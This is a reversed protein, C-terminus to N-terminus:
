TKGAVMVQGVVRETLESTVGSPATFRYHHQDGAALTTYRCVLLAPNGGPAPAPSPTGHGGGAPLAACANLLAVGVLAIRVHGRNM